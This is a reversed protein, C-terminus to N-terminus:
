RRRHSAPDARCRDTAGPKPDASRRREGACGPRGAIARDHHHQQRPRPDIGRRKATESGGRRGRRHDTSRWRVFSRRRVASAQHRREGPRVGSWHSKHGYWHASGHSIRRQRGGDASTRSAAWPEIPNGPAVSAGEVTRKAPGTQPSNDASDLVQWGQEIRRGVLAVYRHHIVRTVFFQRENM